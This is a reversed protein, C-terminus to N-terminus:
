SAVHREINKMQQEWGGSNVRFAEDRRHAPIKDFGSETLTLLTGAATEQLRFAVPTPTEKSYDTGPDLAYPHWNFSFLNQPQLRIVTMEFTLHDYGPNLIRGRSVQGEIFPQELKVRFWEGFERYDSLARWVRALPAKLEIQKQIADM